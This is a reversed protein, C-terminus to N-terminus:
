VRRKRKEFVYVKHRCSQPCRSGDTTSISAYFYRGAFSAQPKCIAMQMVDHHRDITYTAAETNKWLSVVLNITAAVSKIRAFRRQWPVCPVLLIDIHWRRREPYTLRTADQNLPSALVTIARMCPFDRGRVQKNRLKGLISDDDSM